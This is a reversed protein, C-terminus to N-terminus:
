TQEHIDLILTSGNKLLDQVAVLFSPPAQALNKRKAEFDKVVKAQTVYYKTATRTEHLYCTCEYHLFAHASTAVGCM